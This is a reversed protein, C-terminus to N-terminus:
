PVRKCVRRVDPERRFRRANIFLVEDEENDYPWLFIYLLFVTTYNRCFSKEVTAIM